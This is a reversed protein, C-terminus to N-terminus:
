NPAESRNSARSRVARSIQKIKASLERPASSAAAACGMEQLRRCGASRVPATSLRRQLAKHVVRM